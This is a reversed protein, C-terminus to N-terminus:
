RGFTFSLMRNERDSRAREAQRIQSEQEAVWERTENRTADDVPIYHYDGVTLERRIMELGVGEFLNRNKESVAM